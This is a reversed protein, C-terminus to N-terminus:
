MHLLLLSTSLSMKGNVTIEYMMEEERKGEVEDWEYYPITIFIEFECSRKL